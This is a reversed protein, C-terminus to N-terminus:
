SPQCPVEQQAAETAGLRLAPGIALVLNDCVVQDSERLLGADKLRHFLADAGMAANLLDQNILVAQRRAVTEPMAVIVIDRLENETAIILKGLKLM